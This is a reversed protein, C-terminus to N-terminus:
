FTLNKKKLVLFNQASIRLRGLSSVVVYLILKMGFMVRVPLM